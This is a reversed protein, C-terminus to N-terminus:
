RFRYGSKITLKSEAIALLALVQSPGYGLNELMKAQEELKRKKEQEVEEVTQRAEIKHNESPSVTVEDYGAVTLEIPTEAWDSLTHSQGPPLVVRAHLDFYVLDNMVFAHHIHYSLSSPSLDPRAVKLQVLDALESLKNNAELYSTYEEKPLSFAVEFHLLQEPETM